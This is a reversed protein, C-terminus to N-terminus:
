FNVRRSMYWVMRRSSMKEEISMEEVGNKGEPTITQNGSDIKWM